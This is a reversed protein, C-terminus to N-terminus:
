TVLIGGRFSTFTPQWGSHGMYLVDGCLGDMEVYDTGM